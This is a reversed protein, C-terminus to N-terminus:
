ADNEADTTLYLIVGHLRADVALTDSGDAAKRYVRFHVVDEAAPTGAITIAASEGSVYQSDTTGGTDTVTQATGFSAGIADGDSVAVGQLAWVVGFNTTTAPHSWLFRATITGENWSKPMPLIFQAYEETTADFDLSSIDPQGASLAILTLAQCGGSSSPRMAGSVIPVSHRGATPSHVQAATQQAVAETVVIGKIDSNTLASSVQFGYVVFIRGDRLEVPSAYELEFMTADFETLASWTTGNDVSTYAILSYTANRRTTVILTGTSLLVVNPKGVGAFASVPVSWTAGGDTSKQTYHTGPSTADCRHVALISDDPLLVLSTEYYPRADTTSNRIYVVTTFTTGGDISRVVKSSQNAITQGTDNGEIPILVDGNPLELAAGACDSERTFGSITNLSIWASWTAMDDDSYVYGAEGLTGSGTDRFLTAIIRGTSLQTVGLVSVWRPTADQYITTETGWTFTGDLNETGVKRVAKGTTDGHHTDGKTYALLLRGSRLRGIVPWANYKTDDTVTAITGATLVGTGLRSPDHLMEDAGLYKRASGAHTMKIVASGGASPTAWKVGLAQTSDAVLAQGDAGVALRSDASASRAVIDGKTTTPSIAVVASSDFDILVPLATAITTGEQTILAVPFKYYGTGNIPTANVRWLQWTDPDAAKTIKILTGVPIVAWLGALSTADADTNDIYLTTASAHIANDWRIVGTGPDADTTISSSTFELGSAGGGAAGGAGGQTGGPGARHDEYSTVTSAGVVVKYARRYNVVDNWNTLATSISVAGTAVAVVIYNDNSATLTVTGDAVTFGGWKITGSGYYAWTLGTTTRHDRGFISTPALVALIENLLLPANAQAPNTFQPLPM